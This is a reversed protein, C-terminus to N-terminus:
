KLDELIQLLFKWVNETSSISLTEEPTHQANIDPGFSIIDLGSVKESFLGCELGAHIADVKARKNYMREYVEVCVDRLKSEPEYAWGPYNGSESYKAGLLNAIEKLQDQLFHKRSLVSSRTASVLVVKSEETSIVGLNNSTEVLGDIGLSMSQVGNPILMIASVIKKTVEETFAEKKCDECPIKEISVSLNAENIKFENQLTKNMEEVLAKIAETDKPDVMITADAERPIANDKLGGSIKSILINHDTVAKYLIRGMLKNSNALEKDIEVGSHGGNLGRIKITYAKFTESVSESVADIELYQRVGGACSVTFTGEKDSDINLFYKNGELVSGEIAFAGCLGTEEESTVVLCIKPHKYKNSDLLALGMAVAVGNDAGLTTGDARIIDGEVILKIPDKSFDHETDANKENVMDMHGQIIVGESDEYGETAPKKIIVNLAKDQIVELNREKAFNVLYDSIAKEDGSGRPIQSIEEFFKFVEYPELEKLISM